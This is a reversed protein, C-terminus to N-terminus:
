GTVLAYVIIGIIILAGIGIGLGGIKKGLKIAEAQMRNMLLRYGNSNSGDNLSARANESPSFPQVSWSPLIMLPNRKYRMMYEGSAIRPISDVVITQDAIQEKTFSIEGNDNIKMVTVFNKKAKGGTVRSSFPLKFDKTKQKEKKGIAEDLKEEIRDLRSKEEM